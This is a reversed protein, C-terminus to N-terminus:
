NVSCYVTSVESVSMSLSKSDLFDVDRQTVIGLLASGM